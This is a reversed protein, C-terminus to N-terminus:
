SWRPPGPPRLETVPLRQRVMEVFPPMTIRLLGNDAATAEGDYARGAARIADHWDEPLHQLGWAGASRKSIVPSGTELTYLIRCGNWVAYTAEYPDNADGEYVHRELHELERDLARQLEAATPPTVLEDPRDGQLPVFQGALWHAREIAWCNHRRPECFADSPPDGGGVEDALLYNVDLPLGHKRALLDHAAALRAPRSAPDDRWNSPHRETPAVSAVVASIDLDGPRRPRDSFTTGGHLWMAALDDGLVRLLEERAALSAEASTPPIQDLTIM